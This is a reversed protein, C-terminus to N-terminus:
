GKGLLKAIFVVIVLIPIVYRICIFWLSALRASKSGTLFAETALRRRWFWGVFISLLLGGFPLFINTTLYDLLDFFNKGFIKFDQIPGYSLCCPVGLLFIIGGMIWAAKKRSWEKEDVFYATVTELLSIASTLAAISLFAFFCAGFFGGLPMHNFVVPLTVFILSPGATPEGGLAFVAPFIALGALLAILTDTSATWFASKPVNESRGLYSGYTIMAGMGISLTFSAQGLAILISEENIKSFDPYWLFEIGEMAGPLTVSRVVLLALIGALIPMLIKNCAELGSKIGRSVIYICIVMFLGHWVVPYIPHGSFKIFIAESEEATQLALFDGSFLFASVTKFTYAVAWGAIISYFSLILFGTLVGLAGALWWPSNPGSLKKYAGVADKQSARGVLLEAIILPLGIVVVWFIYILTFAAGGNQGAIYPYKWINGLGVASGAAAMVFLLSSGWHERRKM